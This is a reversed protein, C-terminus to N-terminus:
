QLPKKLLWVYGPSLPYALTLFISTLKQKLSGPSIIDTANFKEPHAIIKRTFDILEFRNVLKKLGWYTYLTEYYKSGRGLLKLYLNSLPKPLYSLFPLKGYHTEIPKLRNTAGFYCVGGPKLIRYIEDLLKEASPVHEYMQNCIVVDYSCDEFPTNLADINNYTINQLQHQRKAFEIAEQDIDIADVQRFYESFVITMFGASCSIEIAKLQSVDGRYSELVSVIKRAKTKRGQEDFMNHKAVRNQTYNLQYAANNSINNKKM